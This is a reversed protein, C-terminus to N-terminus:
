RRASGPQETGAGAAASNRARRPTRATLRAPARAAAPPAARPQSPRAPGAPAPPSGAPREEFVSIIEAFHEETFRYSGGVLTFPVRRRRAQEKVWWASCGLAKAVQGASYLPPLAGPAAATV